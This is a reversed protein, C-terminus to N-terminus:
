NYAHSDSSVVAMVSVARDEEAEVSAVLKDAVVVESAEKDEVEVVAAAMAEM